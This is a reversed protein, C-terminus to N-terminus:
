TDERDMRFFLEPYRLGSYSLLRDQGRLPLNAAFAAVTALRPTVMPFGRFITVGAMSGRAAAVSKQETDGSSAARTPIPM